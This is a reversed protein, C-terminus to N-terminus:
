SLNLIVRFAILNVFRMVVKNFNWMVTENKKFEVKNRRLSEGACDLKHCVLVCEYKNFLNHAYGALFKEFEIAENTSFKLSKALRSKYTLCGDIPDKIEKILVPKTIEELYRAIDHRPHPMKHNFKGRYRVTQKWVTPLILKAEILFLFLISFYLIVFRKLHGNFSKCKILLNSSM